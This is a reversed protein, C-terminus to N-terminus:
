KEVEIFYEKKFGLGAWLVTERDIFRNANQRNSFWGKYIKMGFILEYVKM